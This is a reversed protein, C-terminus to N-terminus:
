LWNKAIRIYTNLSYTIPKIVYIPNVHTRKSSSNIMRACSNQLNSLKLFNQNSIAGGWILICYSIHSYIHAYYILKKTHTNLM